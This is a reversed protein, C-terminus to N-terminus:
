WTWIPWAVSKIQARPITGFYRGDFSFPSYDSMLLVEDTGLRYDRLNWLPMPRGAQDVAQPKSNALQRGNVTVGATTISIVDGSVAEIRKLMTEYHTFGGRGIYGRALAENFVAEEPPRFFVLDGVAPAKPVAWYVGVPFSHTHNVRLGALGALALLWLPSLFLVARLLRRRM